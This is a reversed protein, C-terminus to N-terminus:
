INFKEDTLQQAYLLVKEEIQSYDLLVKRGKPTLRTSGRSIGGKESVVAPAGLEAEMRRLMKLCKTYSMGMSKSAESISSFEDIKELLEKTGPGILMEKNMIILRIKAKM